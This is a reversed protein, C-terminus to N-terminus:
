CCIVELCFINSFDDLTNARVNKQDIFKIVIVVALRCPKEPSVIKGTPLIAGIRNKVRKEIHYWRVCAHWRPYIQVLIAFDFTWFISQTKTKEGSLVGKHYEGTIRQAIWAAEPM